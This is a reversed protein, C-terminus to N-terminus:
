CCVRSHLSLLQRPQSTPGTLSTRADHKVNCSTHRTMCGKYQLAATHSTPYRCLHLLQGAYPTYGTYITFALCVYQLMVFVLQLSLRRWMSAHLSAVPCKVTASAPHVHPQWCSQAGKCSMVANYKRQSAAGTPQSEFPMCALRVAGRHELHLVKSQFWM